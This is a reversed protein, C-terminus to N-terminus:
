GSASGAALLVVIPIALVPVWWLGNAIFAIVIIALIVLLPLAVLIALGTQIM